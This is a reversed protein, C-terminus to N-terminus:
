VLRFCPGYNGSGTPLPRQVLEDAISRMEFMQAIGTLLATRSGSAWALQLQNLMETFVDDFSQILSWIASDPVDSQQYGGPPIDAMPWTEPMPVEPGTFAWVGTNPDKVCKRGYFLEGFRYYHALDDPGTDEPSATSGEGQHKILEIALRVDDLTAIKFLSLHGDLQRALSLSPNLEEFARLLSDYFEGISTFTGGAIFAIPGGQPYEIDMFVKIQDRTLRKLEVILGPHVGGPLSTPFAPVSAPANLSPQGGIATLLNCGLGYHLMEEKAVEFITDSVEGPSKVTWQATLYPPLTAFELNIATQLSEKLWEVDRANPPVQMLAAISRVPRPPTSSPQGHRHTSVIRLLRSESLSDVTVRCIYHGGPLPSGGDDTRDWQVLREGPAPEREDILRRVEDGFRDWIRIALRKAGFPITISFEVRHVSEIVGLSNLLMGRSPKASLSAPSPEASYKYVTEGSAYGVQVPNGIFRFRNIALGVHNADQWTLGGDSTESTSRREFNADGWGGVWGHMEDIFGVGELNANRQPDNIPLRVWSAGGDVTKLVAGEQFNELSVFGIRENVFFIKWGWEGAPFAIDAAHNTWSVGGDNTKLVVPRVNARTPVAQDTKGGVVWGTTPSTFFCDILIDAWTRMEWAIWTRGGDTTKMMRPPRNPFNTGSAFVVNENVVSIGCIAQPANAPLMTTPRWIQGGDITEFLTAGPTLSGVWGRQPSAFGICRWYVAEDHHQETWSAGGNTTKIIQGNSNVAWGVDANLFWVDDTRSSAVPANTARWRLQRDGVISATPASDEPCSDDIWVKIFEIDEDRVPPLGAPMRSMVAGPPPAPLDAGFPAEGRLAKVLNSANGDGIKVLDRGLVRKIVFQDRTLGRWFAGHVGVNVAPGGVAQDLIAIVREFRTM